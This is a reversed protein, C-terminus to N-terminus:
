LEIKRRNVGQLIKKCAIEPFILGTKIMADLQMEELKANINGTAVGGLATTYEDPTRLILSITPVYIHILTLFIVNQVLFIEIILIQAMFITSYILTIIQAM